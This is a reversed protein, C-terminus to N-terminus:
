ATVRKSAGPPVADPRRLYLPTLPESPAGELVRRAALLVVAEGTPHLPGPRVDRGPFAAAHLVAGAGVLHGDLDPSPWSVADLRGALEAPALVGPGAVREGDPAYEAWYVEKRRADALVLRRAGGGATEHADAPDDDAAAIADLSCVGYAPIDLADCLAAATVIGVRLGTFPGPGLGVAVASLDAPRLMLETFVAQVGTALLEGHRKGDVVQWDAQRGWRADGGDAGPLLEVLAVSVAASSTDLGLVLLPGPV